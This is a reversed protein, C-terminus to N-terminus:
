INNLRQKEIYKTNIKIVPIYLNLPFHPIFNQGIAKFISAICQENNMVFIRNSLLFLQRFPVPLKMNFM